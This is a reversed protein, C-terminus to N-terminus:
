FGITAEIILGDVKGGSLISTPAYDQYEQNMYEVKMMVNKTVFWGVSGVIRNITIDKSNGPLTATLSNYRGGIWFNEKDQPFRYIIDVAYQKATRMKAESITRGKAVEYTGFLELGKFKLFPNIM